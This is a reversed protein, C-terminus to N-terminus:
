ARIGRLAQSPEIQIARVAPYLGAVSGTVLGLLPAWVLHGPNVVPSWDRALAILVIALLGASSGVIGGLAGLGASEAIVQTAIHRGKAGLARRLGIESSREMVAVLTTNAIGVAGILLSIGALAYFLGQLDDSVSERLLRPDPPPTVSVDDPALYSMALGAEDAVQLAAGPRTTIIVQAGVKVSPEGWLTTAIGSPVIAGLLLDARRDVGDLVGAVLFPRGGITVATPPGDGTVGLLTAAGEGLVVVPKDDQFDGFGAGGSFTAGVTSWTSPSAALIPITQQDGQEPHASRVEDSTAPAFILAVGQVGNLRRTGDLAERTFPFRDASDAARNDLVRVTTAAQADFRASVRSSATSTLGLIVILTGVGLVTGLATLMSRGPKAIMGSTVERLLDRVGLRTSASSGSTTRSRSRM